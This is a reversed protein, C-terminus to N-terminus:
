RGYPSQQTPPIGLQMKADIDWQKVEQAQTQSSARQQVLRARCESYAQTGPSSGSIQCAQDDQAQAQAVTNKDGTACGSVIVGLTLLGVLLRGM